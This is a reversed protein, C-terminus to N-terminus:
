KIRDKEEADEETYQGSEVQYAAWEALQAFSSQYPVGSTHCRKYRLALSLM